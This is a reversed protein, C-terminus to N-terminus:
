WLRRMRPSLRHRRHGLRQGSIGSCHTPYLLRLPYHLRLPSRHKPTEQNWIKVPLSPFKQRIPPLFIPSFPLSWPSHISSKQTAKLQLTQEFSHTKHFFDFYSQFLIENSRDKRATRTCNTLRSRWLTTRKPNKLFRRVIATYVLYLNESLLSSCALFFLFTVRM